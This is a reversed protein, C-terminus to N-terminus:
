GIHLPTLCVVHDLDPLSIVYCLPLPTNGFPFAITILAFGAFFRPLPLMIADPDGPMSDILLFSGVMGMLVSVFILVDDDFCRSLYKIALSALLSCFGVGVFLLNVTVQDWNYAALVFPTTITEQVAFNYYHVFFLVLCVYLGASSPPQDAKVDAAATRNGDDGVDGGDGSDALASYQGRAANRSEDDPACAKPLYYEVAMASTVCIVILFLGPGTFEDVTVWETHYSPITAFLAGIAPGCTFGVVACTGLDATYETLQDAPAREAMFAQEVAQKGGTWLGTLFRAWFCTWPSKLTDAMVYMVSGVVGCMISSTLVHAPGMKPYRQSAVNYAKGFALAGVMEGFCFTAVVWGLFLPDAGMRELYPALSPLVISFATCSWFVCFMFLRMWTPYKEPVAVPAEGELADKETGEM